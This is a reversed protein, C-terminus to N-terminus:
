FRKASDFLAAAPVAGERLLAPPTCTVDALTSGPGGKVPGADLILGASSIIEPPLEEPRTCGPQGSTNASTGTIPFDVANVLARAVPHGPLRIGIKGTGATLRPSIHDAAEFVLTLNGPWFRDMLRRAQDPITKVLAPLASPDNILILVPNDAPRQKIQFVKEVADPNLANAAVGYLCQAPFIVVGNRALVKGARQISGADPRLPDVRIINGSDPM